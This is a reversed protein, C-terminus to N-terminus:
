VARQEPRIHLFVMASCQRNSCSKSDRRFRVLGELGNRQTTVEPERSLEGHNAELLKMHAGVLGLDAAALLAIVFRAMLSM